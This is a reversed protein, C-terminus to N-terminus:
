KNKLVIPPEILEPKSGGSPVIFANDKEDERKKWRRSVKEIKIPFITLTGEEDIHLRLFNKYDQIRLASFAENDHRGFINMSITLYLGLNFSGIVWGLWFIILPMFIFGSYISEKFVLANMYAAFLGIYFISFLHLFFHSFGGIWRYLKSHTDTFFLFLMAIIGLWLAAVPNLVFSKITQGAFEMITHPFDFKFTSSVIWITVLYLVATMFGFGPNYFPFFINKWGLRKSTKEDPYSKKLAFERVAQGPLQKDEAILSCDFGHTAHMFAGGGGATIKQTKDDVGAAIEEHRRYHHLDGTLFVKVEVKKPSLIEQQLYILDSEDYPAGYEKYKHAYIWVPESICLIVKDGEDM